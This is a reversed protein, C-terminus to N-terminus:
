FAPQLHHLRHYKPGASTQTPESVRQGSAGGAGGADVVAEGAGAGGAGAGGAGACSPSQTWWSVGSAQLRVVLPPSGQKQHGTVAAAPM